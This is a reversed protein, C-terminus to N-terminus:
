QQHGAEHRAGTEAQRANRLWSITATFRARLDPKDDLKVGCYACFAPGPILTTQTCNWCAAPRVGTPKDMTQVPRAVPEASTPANPLEGQCSPSFSASTARVMCDDVGELLRLFAPSPLSKRVDPRSWAIFLALAVHGACTRKKVTSGAGVARPGKFNGTAVEFLTYHFVQCPDGHVPLPTESIEGIDFRTLSREVDQDAITHAPPYHREGVRTLSRKSKHTWLPGWM